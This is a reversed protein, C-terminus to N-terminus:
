NNKKIFLPEYESLVEVVDDRTIFVHHELKPNTKSNYLPNQSDFWEIYHSPNAKFFYAKGKEILGSDDIDTLYHVGFRAIETTYRFSWVCYEMTNSQDYVIETIHNEYDEM